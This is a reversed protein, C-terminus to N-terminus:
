EDFQRLKQGRGVDAGDALDHFALGVHQIFRAGCEIGGGCQDNQGGSQADEGRQHSPDEVAAAVESDHFSQASGFTQDVSEERGFSGAM